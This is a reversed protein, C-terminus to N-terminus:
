VPIQMYEAEWLSRELEKHYLLIINKHMFTMCDEHTHMVRM